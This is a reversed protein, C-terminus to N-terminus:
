KFIFKERMIKLCADKLLENEIKGSLYHQHNIAIFGWSTHVTKNNKLLGECSVYASSCKLLRETCLTLREEFRRRIEPQDLKEPLTVLIDSYEHIANKFNLKAKLKDQKSWQLLALGAVIATIATFLASIASWITPWPWNYITHWM